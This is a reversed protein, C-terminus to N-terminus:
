PAIDYQVFHLFSCLLVTVQLVVLIVFNNENEINRTQIKLKNFYFGWYYEKVLAIDLHSCM